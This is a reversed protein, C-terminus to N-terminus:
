PESSPPSHGDEASVAAPAPANIPTLAGTCKVRHSACGGLGVMLCVLCLIKM